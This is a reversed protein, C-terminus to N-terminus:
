PGDEGIRVGLNTGGGSSKRQGAAENQSASHNIAIDKNLGDTMVVQAAFSFSEM